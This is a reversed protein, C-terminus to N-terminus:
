NGGIGCSTGCNAFRRRRCSVRPWSGTACSNGSGSATKSTRKEDQCMRSTTANGVIMEFAKELLAYVPKWYIGTSEMGVHTVQEALLWACWELLERTLTRFTRTITRTHQQTSGVLVTVAVTAQGIDIGACREVIPEM